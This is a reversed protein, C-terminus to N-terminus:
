QYIVIMKLTGSYAQAFIRSAGPNSSVEGFEVISNININPEVTAPTTNTSVRYVKINSNLAYGEKNTLDLTPTEGTTDVFAPAIMISENTLTYVTGYISKFKWEGYNDKPTDHKQEAVLNTIDLQKRIDNIQGSGNFGLRVIDGISVAYKSDMSETEYTKLTGNQYVEMSYVHQGSKQSIIESVNNVLCAPSDATIAVDAVNGFVVIVNATSSSTTDYAEITYKTGTRFFSTATSRSYKSAERRNTPVVLVQTSSNVFVKSEFGTGSLYRLEEKNKGMRLANEDTKPGIDLVIAGGEGTTTQATIISTVERNNNIVVKALQSYTAYAAGTNSALLSATKELKKLVADGSTYPQNNIRVTNAVKYKTPTSPSGSLSIVEIAANDGKMDYKGAFTIYMYNGSQVETIKAAAIKGDKDLYFTGSSGPSMDVKGSLVVQDFEKTAEYQKKNIYYKKPSTNAVSEIEGTITENSVYCKFSRSDRSAAVSIISMARLDEIKMDANTKANMLTVTNNRDYPDIQISKGTTYYDYVVYNNSHTSDTTTVPSKVVYTDYDEIFLTDFTGDAGTDILRVKGNLFNASNPDLWYSLDRESADGSALHNYAATNYILKASSSINITQTRSSGTKNPWYTLKLRSFSDIDSSAITLEENQVLAAEMSIIIGKEGSSDLKYYGSVYGGLYQRAVDPTVAATYDYVAVNTGSELVIEGTKTRNAGSGLSYLGDVESVLMNKFEIVKLMDKLLTKQTLAVGGGVVPEMLKIELSNFVLQAVIGRPAPGSTTSQIAGKTLEIENAVAIYGSPWGGKEAALVERGLACVIMKVAQEYTVPANPAFTGDGMGLIIGRDYAIKVYGSAWHGEMDSFLGASSSTGVMDEMGIARTMVAAFEARTITNQPKFSGDEYGKLLGLTVMSEIADGYQTKDTVDTFTLASGSISIGLMIVFALCIATIRNRLKM